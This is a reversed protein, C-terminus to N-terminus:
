SCPRILKPRRGTPQGNPQYRRSPDITLRRLIKGQGIITVELGQTIVLVQEGRLRSDIAISYSGVKIRGYHDINVLRTKDIGPLPEGPTAPESARWAELPTAGGLARHPRKQNYYDLFTDLQDQLQDLDQALPRARLWQKLTQHWRELKGCTQPHGPTSCIHRIGAARLNREFASEGEKLFRGTFCPGNDSIVHAPLGYREGAETFATWAAETTPGPCALAAPVLRSHDDILDMVWVEDGGALVWRTADIQWAGNPTPWVFRRLAARPRKEPQAVVHGGRVLVRHVTAVSPIESWGARELRYVISQAGCDTGDEALQKRLRVIEDELEPRTQAPSVHPRRSREVLGQPGEERFRRRYKYFTQRSIQLEGCLKSVSFSGLDATFVALLRVSMPVVKGAM